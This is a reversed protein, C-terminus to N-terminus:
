AAKKKMMSGAVLMGLTALGSLGVIGYAPEQVAAPLRKILDGEIKETKEKNYRKAAAVLGWNLAGIASIVVLITFITM